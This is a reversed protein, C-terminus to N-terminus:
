TSRSRGSGVGVVRAGLRSGPVGQGVAVVEGAAEFGAIYPPNTGGLFWGHAKSIDAFNVGAATLRILVEDPGPGPVSVDDILCMDQPGDLTTQQLARVTAPVSVAIL